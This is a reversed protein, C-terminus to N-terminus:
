KLLLIEFEGELLISKVQSISPTAQWVLIKEVPSSQQSASAFYGHMGVIKSNEM